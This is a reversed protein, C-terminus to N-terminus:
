IHRLALWAEANVQAAVQVADSPKVSIRWVDGPGDQLPAVDRIGTWIETVAAADDVVAVDHQTFMQRIRGARYAVSKAFGEIRLLTQGAAPVHAAGSVEYPSGLAHSMVTVAQGIDLGSLILTAESAPKPLVKLSM